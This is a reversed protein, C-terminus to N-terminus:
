RTPRSRSSRVAASSAHTSTPRSTVPGYSSPPPGGPPPSGPSATRWATRSTAPATSTARPSNISPAADKDRGGEACSVTVTQGDPLAQTARGTGVVAPVGLERSVIAAHSTRGGHDTVIASARKMIPEWHHPQIRIRQM